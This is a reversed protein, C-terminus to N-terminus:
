KKPSKKKKLPRLIDEVSVKGDTYLEIKKCIKMSPIYRGSTIKSMYGQSIELYECLRKHAGYGENFLWLKLNM